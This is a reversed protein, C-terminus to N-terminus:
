NSKENTPDEKPFVKEEILSLRKSLKKNDIAQTFACAVYSVFILGIYVFTM